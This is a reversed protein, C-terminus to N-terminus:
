FGVQGDTLERLVDMHGSHRATERVMHFLVFRVTTIGFYWHPLATADDLSRTAVVSRSRDCARRYADVVDDASQGAPVAFSEDVDFDDM